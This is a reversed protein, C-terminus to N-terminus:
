ILCPEIKSILEHFDEEIEAQSRHRLSQIWTKIRPIEMSLNRGRIDRYFSRRLFSFQCDLRLMEKVLLSCPIPDGYEPLTIGGFGFPVTFKSRLREITGDAIPAFLQKSRREIALDNLGVFVRSLPLSALDSAIRIADLTEILIGIKVRGQARNLLQDVEWVSRVMPLLLENAGLTIAQEMEASTSDSYGNLRCIIPISLAQRMRRLDEPTHQNIETDNGVQRREKDKSEWDILIADIGALAAKQAFLPDISFLFFDFPRM